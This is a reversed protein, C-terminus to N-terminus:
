RVCRFGNINGWGTPLSYLRTTVSILNTNTYWSGGRLMRWSGSSPGQPNRSSSSSYYNKDYWDSCLESVNGAMDYLGYGNAPYSGVKITDNDESDGSDWYNADGGSISDGNPYKAGQLGGRAAYEWEAETPLRGGKWECYKSADNWKVNIVPYNDYNSNGYYSGRKSSKLSKPAHCKGAQVCKKYEGNTVEYTDMHFESIYVTHVPKEDSDGDNTGMEFSGGPIKVMSPNTSIAISPVELITETQQGPEDNGCGTFCLLAFILIFGVISVKNM